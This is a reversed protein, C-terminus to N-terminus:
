GAVVHLARCLARLRRARAPSADVRTKTRHSSVNLYLFYGVNRQKNTKQKNVNRVFVILFFMNWVIM